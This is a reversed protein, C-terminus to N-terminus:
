SYISTRRTHCSLLLLFLQDSLSRLIAAVGPQTLSARVTLRSACESRAVMRLLETLRLAQSSVRGDVIRGQVGIAAGFM